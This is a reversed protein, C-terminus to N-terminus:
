LYKGHGDHNCVLADIATSTFGFAGVVGDILATGRPLKRIARPEASTTFVRHGSHDLRVLLM